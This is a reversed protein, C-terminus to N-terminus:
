FDMQVAALVTRPTGFHALLNGTNAGTLNSPGVTSWYSRNTVNDVSLRWTVQKNLILSSYRAGVDFLNYGAVFFSNTDNAPRTGSFQYNFTAVLGPVAPITYEWLTNGKVRPAGVYYKDNTALSPTEELRANLLTVGGYVRLNEVVNGVASFELGKNVQDGSIEFIKNAGVAV